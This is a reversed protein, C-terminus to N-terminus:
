MGPINKESKKEKISKCIEIIGKIFLMFSCLASILSLFAFVYNHNTINLVINFIFMSTFIFGIIIYSIYELKM